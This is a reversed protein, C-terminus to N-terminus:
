RNHACDGNTDQADLTTGLTTNFQLDNGMGLVVIGPGDPNTVQNLRLRNNHGSVRIGGREIELLKYFTSPQTWLCSFAEFLSADKCTILGVIALLSM